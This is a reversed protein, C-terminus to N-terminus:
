VTSVTSEEWAIRPRELLVDLDAEVMELWVRLENDLRGLELSRLVATQRTTRLNPMDNPNRIATPAPRQARGDLALPSPAPFFHQPVSTASPSPPLIDPGEPVSTSLKLLGRLSTASEAGVRSGSRTRTMGIGQSFAPRPPALPLTPSLLDDDDVGALALAHAQAQSRGEMVTVSAQRMMPPRTMSALSSPGPGASAKSPADNSFFFPAASHNRQMGAPRPLAPTVSNFSRDQASAPPPGKSVLPFHFGRLGEGVSGGGPRRPGGNSSGDRQLYEPQGRAPPNSALSDSSGKSRLPRDFSPPLPLPDNSVMERAMLSQMSAGENSGQGSGSTPEDRPFEEIRQRVTSADGNRTPGQGPLDPMSPPNDTSKFPDPENSGENHFLKRISMPAPRSNAPGITVAEGVDEGDTRILSMRSRVTQMSILSINGTTKPGVDFAWDGYPVGDEDIEDDDIAAGVGPALSQRQGGSEKWTQFRTILDQLPALPTKVQNRIWRMKALEEAPSRDSPEENLCGTVFDKMDRSWESGELRPARMKRDGLMMVARAAPQGSLPPEGYAMELLTIGLSWIDAKFDYLRGETVVEPAMWYPTGVFTSRKSTSSALLAAVGFDCLLVRIPSVSLLINAAKLDRHIVGNRHLFALAVLVERIILCIHLEKLPQARSLTRVSGGEAYEMIIWVKPGQMLSGYYMTVNTPGSADMMLQQLLSIERKIDAVDDDETDLNIIKLAVIHGTPIHRAKYVAGYAGKGAIELREYVSEPEVDKPQSALSARYAEERESTEVLSM